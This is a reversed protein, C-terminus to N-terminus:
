KEELFSLPRGMEEKKRNNYIQVYEDVMLKVTKTYSRKTKEAMAKVFYGSEGPNLSLKLTVALYDKM